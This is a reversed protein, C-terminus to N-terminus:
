KRRKQPRIRGKNYILLIDYGNVKTSCNAIIKGHM